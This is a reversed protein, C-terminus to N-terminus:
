YNEDNNLNELKYDHSNIGVNYGIFYSGILASVGAVVSIISIIIKTNQKSKKAM